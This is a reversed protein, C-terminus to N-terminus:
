VDRIDSKSSRVHQTDIALISIFTSKRPNPNGIDRRSIAVDTSGAIKDDPHHHFVSLVRSYDAITFPGVIKFMRTHQSSIVWHVCNVGRSEPEHCIHM